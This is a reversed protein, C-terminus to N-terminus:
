PVALQAVLGLHDTGDIQFTRIATAQLRSGVLVHDIAIVPPLAGHSPYTPLWGVGTAEAADKFGLERVRRLPAHDLTAAFDGALVVPESAYRQAADALLRQDSRWTEFEHLPNRPRATIFVVDGGASSVRVVYQGNLTPLQEVLALPRRSLVMTGHDSEYGMTTYGLPATGIRERFDALAGGKELATLLPEQVELLMVVDPREAALQSALADPDAKGFNTNLVLLTLSAIGGTSMPRPWPPHALAAQLLAAALCLSCLLRALRGRASAAAVVAALCWVLIGFPVFAALLTALPHREQLEPAASLALLTGGLLVLPLAAAWGLLRWVRARTVSGRHWLDGQTSEAASLQGCIEGTQM